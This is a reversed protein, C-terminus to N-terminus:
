APPAVAPLPRVAPGALVRGDTGFRSAHCPCDWTREADNFVVLCGLHTCRASVCQLGGEDDRYAAIARAGDTVVRGAGPPLSDVGRRAVLADVRDGLFRSAVYANAKVFEAASQRVTVRQPDFVGTLPNEVGTVLDRLLLGALTGNTMGWHGFGTAVWVNRSRPHFRGIYPVSDVTTLDHALWRYAPQELGLRERAWAALQVYHRAVSTRAGVRHPEGGVILLTRGDEAPTTRVSHRDESSIYMGAPLGAGDDTYGAVVLDRRPELRAFFLGRDFVPYHTAVVVHRARIEGATTTVVCPDGETLGVARTGTVVTGGDGPIRTALELLWRRPHFQAQGTFRVAGAVEFPLGTETTFSAPLGAAAAAEAERHLDDVSSSREAFVYSDRRSWDAEGGVAAAETEIWDIALQQGAGYARATDAGFGSTLSAYIAGHQSSVKATTHGTVGAALRDGAEILTVTLGAQKLLYATTIGAIGAGLVVVDADPLPSPPPALPPDGTSDLWYSM